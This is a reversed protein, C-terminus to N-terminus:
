KDAPKRVDIVNYEDCILEGGKNYYETIKVTVIDDPALTEWQDKPLLVQFGGEDNKCDAYYNFRYSKGSSVRRTYLSVVTYTEEHSRTEGDFEYIFLATLLGISLVVVIIAIINDAKNNKM